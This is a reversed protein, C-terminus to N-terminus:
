LIPSRRLTRPVAPDFPTRAHQLRRNDWILLDGPRWRHTYIIRDDYLPKRVEALLALGEEEGLGLVELTSLKNVWLAGRDDPKERWVMPHIASLAQKEKDDVNWDRALKGSFTYANRCRLPAIRARLEPSLMEHATVSDAFRTDGGADPVEIGYLILASLPEPQFLQDLHFDLEGLGFVGDKRVNSVHQATADASQIRNKERLAVQGFIEAFRTQHATDIEQDRLLLLRHQRFAARLTARTTDDLPDRLDLGTVEVGFHPNLPRMSIRKTLLNDTIATM